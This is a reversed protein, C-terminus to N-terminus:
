LFEQQLEKLPSPGEKNVNKGQEWIVSELPFGAVPCHLVLPRGEVAKVAFPFRDTVMPPGYINLRAAHATSGARNAAECGYLGGDGTETESINLHSIVDGHVNVYQGIM